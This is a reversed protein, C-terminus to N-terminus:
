AQPPPTTSPPYRRQWGWAGRHSEDPFRVGTESVDPIDDLVEERRRLAEARRQPSGPAGPPGNGPLREPSAAGDRSAADHSGELDDSVEDLRDEAARRRRREFDLQAELRAVRGQTKPDM